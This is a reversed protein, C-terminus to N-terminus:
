QVELLQKNRDSDGAERAFCGQLTFSKFIWTHLHGTGNKSEKGTGDTWIAQKIPTETQELVMALNLHPALLNTGRFYQFYQRYALM